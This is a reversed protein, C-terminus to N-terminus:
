DGEYYLRLLSERWQRNAGYLQLVYKDLERELDWQPRGSARFPERRYTERLQRGYETIETMTEKSLTPVPLQEVEYNGVHNNTSTTRFFWDLVCSNLLVELVELPLDCRSEAIYNCSNSVITPGEVVVWSLRRRKGM